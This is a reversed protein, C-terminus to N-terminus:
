HKMCSSLYKVSTSPVRHILFFPMNQSRCFGLWCTASKMGGICGSIIRKRHNGAFTQSSSASSIAHLSFCTPQFFHFRRHAQSWKNTPDHFLTILNLDSRNSTTGNQSISSTLLQQSHCQLKCRDESVFMIISCDTSLPYWSGCPLSSLTFKYQHPHVGMIDEVICACDMKHVFRQLFAAFVITAVNMNAGYWFNLLLMFWILHTNITSFWGYFIFFRYCCWGARSAFNLISVM